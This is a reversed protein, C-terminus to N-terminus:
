EKPATRVGIVGHDAQLNQGRWDVRVGVYSALM